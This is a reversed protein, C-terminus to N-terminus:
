GEKVDLQRAKELEEFAAKPMMQGAALAVAIDLSTKSASPGLLQDYAVQLYSASALNRAADRLMPHTLNSWTNVNPPVIFGGAALESAVPQSLFYKLFDVALKPAGKSVLWGNLNVQRESALGKGDPLIPFGLLGMQEPSLGKKDAAVAPNQRVFWSGHMLMAAKGDAFLGAAPQAKTALFGDQYPGLSSFERYLEGARIFAANAFGGDRGALATNVGSGGTQRLCLHGMFLMLPWKDQGGAAMPLIGAAKLKRVGEIFGPWTTLDSDKVGAKALLERNFLIGIENANYPLGYTKEGRTFQATASRMMTARYAGDLQGSIDELFGAKAHTDVLGGGWSYFIHPRSDSQLMTPLRTKFAQTELGQFEIKAGSNAKEFETAAKQWIDLVQRNTEIHLVRITHASQGRTISPMALAMGTALGGKLAGRRSIGTM